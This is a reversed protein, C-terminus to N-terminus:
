RRFGLRDEPPECELGTTGLWTDVEGVAVESSGTIGGSLDRARDETAPEDAAPPELSLDLPWGLLAITLRM